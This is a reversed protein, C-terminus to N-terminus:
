AAAKTQRVAEGELEIRVKKGMLLGGTELIQNWTMAYDERDIEARASFGARQGGWPDNAWGRFEVELAVSRTVDRITLDGTLAFRSGGVARVSTSHFTLKPHREADLFDPSRLHEDRNELHTEISGAEITGWFDSQEPDEAIVITGSFDTFRGRLTTFMHRIVFEVNSHAPDIEWVGVSPLEALTNAEERVETM